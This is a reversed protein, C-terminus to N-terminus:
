RASSGCAAAATGTAVIGPVAQTTLVAGAAGAAPAFLNFLRVMGTISTGLAGLASLTPGVAATLALMKLITQQQQPTLKAFQEALNKVQEIFPRLATLGARLAGILAPGVRAAVIEFEQKLKGMQFALSKTQENLARQTAGIGNNADSSNGVYKNYDAMDNKLLSLVALQEQMDPLLRKIADANGGTKKNIEELIGPLGKAQLGSFGFSIGLKRFQKEAMEGPNAIKTILNLLDNTAESGSQGQITMAAIAGGVEQLTIGAKSATPLVAGISTALESFNVKGDNVTQFLTDMAQRASTVGGIGSNLVAILVNSATATDSLGATAGKASVALVDLSKFKSTDTFGSSQIEYLAKALDTPGQIVAPDKAIKLVSEYMARFGTENKLAISNVNRMAKEFDIASKAALTFGAALPM